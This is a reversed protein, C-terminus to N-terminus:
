FWFFLIRFFFIDRNGNGDNFWFNLFLVNKLDNMIYKLFSDDVIIINELNFIGKYGFFLIDLNKLFLEKYTGFVM